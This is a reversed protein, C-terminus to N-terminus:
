FLGGGSEKMDRVDNVITVCITTCNGSSIQQVSNPIVWCVYRSVSPGGALHQMAAFPM